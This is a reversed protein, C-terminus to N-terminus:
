IQSRPVRGLSWIDEPHVSPCKPILSVRILRRVGIFYQLGGIDYICVGILGWSVGILWRVATM